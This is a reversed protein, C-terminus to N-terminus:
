ILTRRLSPLLLRNSKASVQLIHSLDFKIRTSLHRSASLWDLFTMLSKRRAILEPNLRDLHSTRIFQPFICRSSSYYREHEEYLDSSCVDSSWDSIRM